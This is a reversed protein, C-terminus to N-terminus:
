IKFIIFPFIGFVFAAVLLIAYGLKESRPLVHVVNSRERNSLISKNVAFYM